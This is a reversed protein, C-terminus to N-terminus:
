AAPRSRSNIARFLLAKANKLREASENDTMATAIADLSQLTVGPKLLTAVTDFSKLKDFPTMIDQQRYRKNIKGKADQIETAFLCPRHFNLYPNLHEACVANVQKAYHQPIHAYGFQKRIIAGNKTEALGNDNSTRPRSRTFELQLKNLMEAVKHNVYESGNDAHFGHLVFPFGDLLQKLVPLLFAESIKECSAVLEWQTVCDVTNIYYLGKIGDLDGQHVSDIRIYGPKGEPRPARRVGIKITTPRTKTLTVRVAQYVRRKRLNYLQAVCINQLRIFRMDDFVHYARQMLCKTAPGSLTGHLADIDALLRVDADSYKCTFGALPAGYHQEIKGTDIFQAVLRTLQQRSYGSVSRLYRLLLGKDCRKMRAYGFRRLVQAIDAYRAADDAAPAFIVEATGTLFDRVQDLTALKTDNMHLIM